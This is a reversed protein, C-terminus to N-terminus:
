SHGFAAAIPTPISVTNGSGCITLAADTKDDARWTKVAIGIAGLEDALDAVTASSVDLTATTADRFEVALNGSSADCYFSQIEHVYPADGKTVEHTKEAGSLLPLDGFVGNFTVLFTESAEITGSGDTDDSVTVGGTVTPM